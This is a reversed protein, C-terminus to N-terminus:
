KRIKKALCNGFQTFCRSIKTLIKLAIRATTRWSVAPRLYALQINKIETDTISTVIGVIGAGQGDAALRRRVLKTGPMLDDFHKFQYFIANTWACFAFWDIFFDVLHKIPIRGPDKVMVQPM